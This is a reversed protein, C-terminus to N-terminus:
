GAGISSPWGSTWRPPHAISDSAAATPWSGAVRGSWLARTTIPWGTTGSARRATRCRLIWSSNGPSTLPTGATFSNTTWFAPAREMPNSPLKRAAVPERTLNSSQKVAHSDLLFEHLKAPQEEPPIPPIPVATLNEGSTDIYIDDMYFKATASLDPHATRILLRIMDNDNTGNRFNFTKDGGTDEIQTQSGYVGGQIYLEAYDDTNNVVYWVNYWTEEVLNEVIDDGNTSAGVSDFRVDDQSGGYRMETQVEYDTYAPGSFDTDSLGVILSKNHGSTDPDDLRWRFFLTATTNDAISFGEKSVFMRGSDYAKM